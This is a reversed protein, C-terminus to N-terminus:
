ERGAERLVSGLAGVLEDIQSRSICHGANICWLGSTGDLVKRGDETVYHM